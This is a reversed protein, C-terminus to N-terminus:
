DIPCSGRGFGGAVPALRPKASDIM